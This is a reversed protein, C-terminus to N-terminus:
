IDTAGTRTPLIWFAELYMQETGGKTIVINESWGNLKSIAKSAYEKDSTMVLMLAPARAVYANGAFAEQYKNGTYAEVYVTKM